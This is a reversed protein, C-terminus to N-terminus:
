GGLITRVAPRLLAPVLRLSSGQATVMTARQRDVAERYCALLEVAQASSLRDLVPGAAEGLRRRLEVTAEDTM